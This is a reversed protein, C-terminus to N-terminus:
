PETLTGFLTAIIAGIGSVVAGGHVGTAYNYTALGVLLLAIGFSVTMVPPVGVGDRRKAQM